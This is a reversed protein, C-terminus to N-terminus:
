CSPTDAAFASQMSESSFGAKTRTSAPTCGEASSTLAMWFASFPEADTAAGGVANALPAPLLVDLLFSISLNCSPRCLSILAAAPISSKDAMACAAAVISLVASAWSTEDREAVPLSGIVSSVAFMLMIPM